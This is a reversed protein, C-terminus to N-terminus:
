PAPQAPDMRRLSEGLILQRAIQDERPTLGANARISALVAQADGLEDFLRAVKPGIRAVTAKRADRAKIREGVPSTHWL